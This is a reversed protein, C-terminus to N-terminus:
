AITRVYPQILRKRSAQYILFRRMWRSMPINGLAKGNTLVAIIEQDEWETYKEIERSMEDRVHLWPTLIKDWEDDPYSYYFDEPLGFDLAIRKKDDQNGPIKGPVPRLTQIM